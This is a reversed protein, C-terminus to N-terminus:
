IDTNLIMSNINVFLLTSVKVSSFDYPIASANFFVHYAFFVISGQDPDTKQRHPIPFM